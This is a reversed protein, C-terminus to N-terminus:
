SILGGGFLISVVIWWVIFFCVIIFIARIIEKGESESIERLEAIIRADEESSSLTKSESSSPM